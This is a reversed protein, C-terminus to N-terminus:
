GECEMRDIITPKGAHGVGPMGARPSEVGPQETACRVIPLAGRIIFGPEFPASVPVFFLCLSNVSFTFFLGFFM